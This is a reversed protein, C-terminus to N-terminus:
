HASLWNEGTNMDVVVPVKLPIAERMEKEVIPMLVDLESKKADFVLEDHVQLIMKSQLKQEKMAEHINIMAVKIMDASSGQIPANIANREAFGRVIANKSNIDRLYRRRGMITQVYGNEKAFQISEEMFKKIGAYKDFYNSIIGAAERRSIGLRESLGFASIGYIIGFNVTKANRRIDPDVDALAVNYVRSATATHIDIGKNFDHIMAEDKSLSAIIRLEIQSYDAALLINNEDKPVFAKRIEKGKETRIPINQLNPNTSSLRGTAAVTQNYSTHIRGDKDNVLAPLADVYTSKLKTLSRYDLIERIIPHGKEHKLLVDESTSFQGSKTKKAKESIKMKGFLVDGLQRPSAINFTEGSMEYIKNEIYKIADALEKSFSKLADVDVKVGFFEMDTLVKILPMEINKFLDLVKKESLEPEFLIKLQLSIDADEAAYIALSDPDANRMSKQNKGKKGILSEIPIMKYNLYTEALIDLSHRMDPEMLYHAVMTDFFPGQVEIGYSKLFAMDFKLNQGIKGQKESEFIEKFESLIEESQKRNEPLPVWFGSHPKFSFSIGVLEDTLPNLGTTETDFAFAMSSKLTEILAQRSEKSDALKYDHEVNEITKFSSAEESPADLTGSFLDGQISEQASEGFVRKAFTRFELENFLETLAEKKYPELELKKIDLKIPVHLDITALKKSLIANEKSAEIKDRLKPNKVQEINEVLNEVSGFQAILKKATVPGVGTIGPINDSSDGSLGLFDIVQEPKEVGFQDCVEEPGWVEALKGGKAPKYMFIYQSVLQGFDKDPTMMFTRLGQKEAQKSLTGIVDDAEYKEVEIQEIGLGDILRKIYPIAKTIDEPTKERNAKYQPYIDNRFTLGKPDFVVAMYDPQENQMVELMTNAFGLIASTNLGKSNIRPNRNLAYYARYILAYADLLFLKNSRSM